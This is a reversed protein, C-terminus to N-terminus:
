FHHVSLKGACDKVRQANKAAIKRKRIEMANQQLRLGKARQQEKLFAYLEKHKPEERLKRWNHIMASRFAVAGKRVMFKVMQLNFNNVASRMAMNVANAGHNRILRHVLGFNGAAAANSLVHNVDLDVLRMLELTISTSCKCWISEFVDSREISIGLAVVQRVIELKESDCKSRDDFLGKFSPM